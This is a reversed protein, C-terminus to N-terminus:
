FYGTNLNWFNKFKGAATKTRSKKSRCRLGGGQQCNALRRHLRERPGCPPICKHDVGRDTREM